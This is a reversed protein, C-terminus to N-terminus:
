RRCPLDRPIGSRVPALLEVCTARAQRRLSSIREGGHDLVRLRAAAMALSRSATSSICSRAAAIPIHSRCPLIMWLVPFVFVKLAAAELHGAGRNRGVIDREAGAIRSKLLEMWRRGFVAVFVAEGVAKALVPHFRQGALLNNAMWSTTPHVSNAVRARIRAAYAQQDDRLSDVFIKNPV